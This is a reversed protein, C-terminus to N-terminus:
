DKALILDSARQGIAMAPGNTNGSVPTPMISCDVVRLRGIGHVRCADDVVSTLPDTGMSCTGTGHLGPDVMTHLQELIESDSQIQAGPQREKGVYHALPPAGAWRRLMKVLELAKRRDVEESWFRPDVIPAARFDASELQVTGRGKPRLHFGAFTIGPKESIPSGPNAAMETVTRMAFPSAALQMDPWDSPEGDSSVMATIPLGVRALPGTGTLFYRLANRPLRWSRFERNLGPDNTLDYSIGLKQHDCWNEGVTPLNRLVPIGHQALHAGPGVGSLMLLQPSRYVGASLIIERRATFRKAEGNIECEIATAIGDEIVVRKAMCDTLISLNPRSRVPALFAEYASARQGKRDVTYQTRGVVEREPTNIDDTWVAGTEGAATVIADFVKARYTSQTIQLPGNHGRSIDARDCRYDEIERYAARISTWGWSHLGLDRWNDFDRPQGRLYWMGNVASSGGLGRGYSHREPGRGEQPTVPFFSFYDPNGMIKAFGAAMKIFISQNTGGAEVLLVRNAPDDSLRRAVVCGSSGAGVIIYDFEDM